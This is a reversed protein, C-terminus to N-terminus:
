DYGSNLVDQIRQPPSRFAESGQLASLEIHLENIHQIFMELHDGRRQGQLDAWLAGCVIRGRVDYIWFPWSGLFIRSEVFGFELRSVGENCFLGFGRYLDM